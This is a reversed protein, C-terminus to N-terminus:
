DCSGRRYRWASLDRNILGELKSIDNEFYEYLEKCLINDLVPKSGTSFLYQKLNTTITRPLIKQLIRRISGSSYLLSILTNIPQKYVNHQRSVDYEIRDIGLFDSLEDFESKADTKIDTDIMIKVNDKGFQSIYREIPQLYQSLHFYQQYHLPYRVQNYFVEELSAKVYGLRQDMLYHSFAREVPNRLIILIKADSNYESIRAPVDPYYFYSVSADGVVLENGVNIFIEDYDHRTNIVSEKYYLNQQMIDPASFYNVEKPKSMFVFPHSNLYRYVSTTACKPAGVIFFNAKNM